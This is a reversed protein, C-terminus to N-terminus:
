RTTTRLNPKNDLWREGERMFVYAAGAFKIGGPSHGPAGVVVTDRSIVVAEGVNDSRGSDQPVLKAQQRWDKENLAYIYAAGANNAAGDHGPAGVICYDVRGGPLGSISVASGFGAQEPTVLVAGHLGKQVQKIEAQDKPVLLTTQEWKKRNRTFIKAGGPHANVDVDHVGLIISDGAIDVAMRTRNRMGEPAGILKVEGDVAHSIAESLISLIVTIIMFSLVKM